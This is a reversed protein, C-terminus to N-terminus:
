GDKGRGNRSRPSKGPVDGRCVQGRGCLFSYRGGSFQEACRLAAWRPLASHTRKEEHSFEGVNVKVGAASSLEAPCGLADGRPELYGLCEPHHNCLHSVWGPAFCALM